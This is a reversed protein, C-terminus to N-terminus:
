PYPCGDRGCSVAASASVYTECVPCKIMEESDIEAAPANGGGGSKAVRNREALRVEQYRAFWKFGHWIAVVVFVTFLLKPLSFGFMHGKYLGGEVM